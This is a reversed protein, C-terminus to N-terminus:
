QGETDPRPGPRGSRAAEGSLELTKPEFTTLAGDRAVHVVGDHAVVVPAPASPWGPMAVM